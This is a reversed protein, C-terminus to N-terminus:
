CKWRLNKSKKYYYFYYFNYFKTKLYDFEDYIGEFINSSQVDVDNLILQGDFFSIFSLLIFIKIM